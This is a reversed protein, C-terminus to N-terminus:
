PQFLEEPYFRVEKVEEFQKATAEIQFWLIGVRCSGGSTKFNPDDFALTLIGNNLVANKLSFGALPYETSIGQGIEEETLDGKLLLNIADKIPNITIPIKREVAVLGQRSCLLNGEKDRDLEFNYYYLKIVQEKKKIEAAQWYFYVASVIVTLTILVVVAFYLKQNKGKM